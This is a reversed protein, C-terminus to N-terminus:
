FMLELVRFCSFFRNLWGKLTRKGAVRSISDPAFGAPFGRSLPSPNMYFRNAISGLLYNNKNVSNAYAIIKKNNKKFNMLANHLEEIQSFSLNINDLELYIGDIKNDKSAYDITRVLDYMTLNPTKTFMEFSNVEKIEYPLSINIYSNKEVISIPKTEEKKLIITIIFLILSLFVGIFILAAFIQKIIFGIFKGIYKFIRM